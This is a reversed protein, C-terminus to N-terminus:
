YAQALGNTRIKPQRFVLFYCHAIRAHYKPERRWVVSDSLYVFREALELGLGQAERTIHDSSWLRAGSDVCDQIKVVLIGRPALLRYAESISSSYFSFLEAQTPYAGFRTTKEWDQHLKMPAKSNRVNFPPDFFISKLSGSVLPLRRCDAQITGPAQPKLDFKLRPAELGQWIRGTSYTVDAEFPHGSLFLRTIWKLIQREAFSVSKPEDAWRMIPIPKDFLRYQTPM